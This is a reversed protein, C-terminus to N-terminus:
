VPGRRSVERRKVAMCSGPHRTARQGSATLGGHQQKQARRYIAGTFIIEFPPSPLDPATQQTRAAKGHPNATCTLYLPGSLRSCSVSRFPPRLFCVTSVAM